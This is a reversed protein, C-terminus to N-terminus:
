KIYNIEELWEYVVKNSGQSKPIWRKAVLSAYSIVVNFHSQSRAMLTDISWAPFLTKFILM